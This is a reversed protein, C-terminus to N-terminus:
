GRLFNLMTETVREPQEQQVWHGAGDILHAGRFDTCSSAAMAQLAGPVQYTGWDSKGSIFSSPVMIKRSAYGALQTICEVDNAGRYWLLGGQFGTREFADSYVRLEDEPLWHCSEVQKRSPAARAVTEAMGENLNMVYYRPLRALEQASWAALPHPQNASWDASKVHYYARLFAHVGQPAGRMEADAEPTSYYGHYHKRPPSLQRLDRQILQMPAIPPDALPRPPGGFPASMLVASRFTDPRKLACWAAVPSGFDHGVIAAVSDAHLAHVLGVIDEVLNLMWFSKPDGDFRSDWGTTWGYGRQDPAVVWFGRSALAPLIRRWSYALEPFGHLLILLPRGAGEFGAELVHM